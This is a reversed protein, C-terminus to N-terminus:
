LPGPTRNVGTFIVGIREESGLTQSGAMELLGALGASGSPSVDIGTTSHAFESTKVLTAEDVLVPYGGSFIMGEVIRCWDSTEEELFAEARSPLFGEWPWMFASRHTRAYRIEEQVLPSWTRERIWEARGAIDEPCPGDHPLARSLRLVIRRVLRDYARQLPHSDKTQVAHIRPLPVSLGLQGSEQFAQICASALGGSGVQIFLRDLTQGKSALESLMEYALTAGGEVAMGNDGSECTFPLAGMDLANLILAIGM